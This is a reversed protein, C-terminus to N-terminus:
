SQIFVLVIKKKGLGKVWRCLHIPWYKKGLITQVHLLMMEVHRSPGKLNWRVGFRQIPFYKSLATVSGLDEHETLSRELGSAGVSSSCWSVLMTTGPELGQRQAVVVHDRQLRHQARPQLLCFSGLPVRISATLSCQEEFECPSSEAVSGLWSNAWIIRTLAPWFLQDSWLILAFGCTTRQSAELRRSRLEIGRTSMSLFLCWHSNFLVAINKELYFM